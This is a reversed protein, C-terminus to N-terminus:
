REVVEVVSVVPAVSGPCVVWLESSGLVVMRFGPQVQAAATNIQGAIVSEGDSQSSTFFVSANTPLVGQIYMEARIRNPSHPLVNQPSASTQFSKTITVREKPLPPTKTDDAVVRVHLIEKIVEGIAPM